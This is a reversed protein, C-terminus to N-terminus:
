EEGGGRVSAPLPGNGVIYGEAERIEPESSSDLEGIADDIERHYSEHKRKARPGCVLAGCRPCERGDYLAIIVPWGFLQIRRM